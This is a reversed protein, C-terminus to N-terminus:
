SKAATPRTWSPSSYLTIISLKTSLSLGECQVNFSLLHHLIVPIQSDGDVASQVPFGASVSHVFLSHASLKKVYLFDKWDWAMVSNFKERIKCLYNIKIEQRKRKM